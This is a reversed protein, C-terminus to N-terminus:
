TNAFSRAKATQRARQKQAGQESSGSQAHFSYTEIKAMEKTVVMWRCENRDMASVKVCFCFCLCMRM